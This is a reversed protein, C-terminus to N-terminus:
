RCGWVLLLPAVLLDGMADGFWWLVWDSRLTYWGIEGTLWLSTTGITASITTSVLAGLMVLALVDQVRQLASHFRVRRLLYAGFLAELTNGTGILLATALSLDSTANAAVAGLAVGPWMRYGFLLLAALSIGTPAWLPTVVGHSVELGIGLKATVFYLAALTAVGVLYQTGRVNSAVCSPLRGDPESTPPEIARIADRM